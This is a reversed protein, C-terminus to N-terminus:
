HPTGVAAPAASSRVAYLRRQRPQVDAPKRRSACLALLPLTLPWGLSVVFAGLFPAGRWHRCLRKLVLASPAWVLVAVAAYVAVSVSM